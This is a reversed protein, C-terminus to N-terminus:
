LNNKLCDTVKKLTLERLHPFGSMTNGYDLVQFFLFAEQDKDM